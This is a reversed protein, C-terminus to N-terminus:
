KKRFSKFSAIRKEDIGFHRLKNYLTHRTVGLIKAARSRHGHCNKLVKEIYIKELQELTLY